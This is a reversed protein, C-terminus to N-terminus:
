ALPPFWRNCHSSTPPLRGGPLILELGTELALVAGIKDGHRGLTQLVDTLTSPDDIRTPIRGAQAITIGAGLDVSLGLVAKTHEVRQQQDKPNDLGLRTSCVLATLELNHSRLLSRLARRGTQSLTHPSLDGTADAHVGRAGLRQAQGIAQRVNPGLSELRVGIRLQNM